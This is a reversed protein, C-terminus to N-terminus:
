FTGNYTYPNYHEINKTMKVAEEIENKTAWHITTGFSITGFFGGKSKTYVIVRKINENTIEKEIKGTGVLVKM